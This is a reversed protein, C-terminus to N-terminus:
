RVYDYLERWNELTMESARATTSINENKLYQIVKEKGYISLNSAVIKRPSSFGARIFGWLAKHDLYKPYINSFGIIQGDVKPQPFFSDASVVKHLKVDSYIQSFNSLLTAHPPKAGYDQAVEKQIIIAIRKPLHSGILLNYIVKKSVNYPLSGIVIYDRKGTMEIYNIVLVDKMVIKVTNGFQEKLSNELNNDKEILIVNNTLSLIEKTVMGQGPGVEIVLDDPQIKAVSVLEKAISPYRLFNQGLSKKFQHNNYEDTM